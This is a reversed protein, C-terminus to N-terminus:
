HDLLKLQRMTETQQQKIVSSQKAMKYARQMSISDNKKQHQELINLSKKESEPKLNQSSRFKSIEDLNNFIKMKNIYSEDMPIVSEDQSKKLDEFKLKSYLDSSYDEPKDGTINNYSKNSNELPENYIQISNILIAKKSKYDTTGCEYDGKFLQGYGFKDEDSQIYAQSFLKNFETNFRSSNKKSISAFKLLDLDEDEEVDNDYNLDRLDNSKNNFKYVYVLVELAERYFIFIKNPLRSKDPHTSLVQKKAFALNELSLCHEITFLNLIDQLSYNDINLDFEKSM